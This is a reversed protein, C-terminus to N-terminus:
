LGAWPTGKLKFQWGNLVQEEEQIGLSWSALITRRILEIIDNPALVIIKDSQNLSICMMYADIQKNREFMVVDASSGLRQLNSSVKFHWGLSYYEKLLICMLYKVKKDTELFPSFPNGKLKFEYFNPQEDTDQIEWYTELINKTAKFIEIPAFILRLRDGNGFIVSFYNNNQRSNLLVSPTSGMQYFNNKKLRFDM